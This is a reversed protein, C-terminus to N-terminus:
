LVLYPLGVVLIYSGLFICAARFVHAAPSGLDYVLWRAWEYVVFYGLIFISLHAFFFMKIFSAIKLEEGVSKVLYGRNRRDNPFVVVRGAKDDRFCRGVLSNLLGM